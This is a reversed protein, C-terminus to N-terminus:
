NKLFSRKTCLGEFILFSGKKGTKKLFGRPDCSNQKVKTITIIRLVM